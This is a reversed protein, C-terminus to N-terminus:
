GQFCVDVVVDPKALDEYGSGELMAVVALGRTFSTPLLGAPVEGEVHASVVSHTSVVNLHRHKDINCIVNLMWLHPDLRTTEFVAPLRRDDSAPWRDTGRLKSESQRRYDSERSIIPFDTGTTLPGETPSSSSGCWTTWAPVSTTPLRAWSLRTSTCPDGARRPGDGSSGTAQHCNRFAASRGRLPKRHQGQSEDVNGSGAQGQHPGRGIARHEFYQGKGFSKDLPQIGLTGSYGLPM